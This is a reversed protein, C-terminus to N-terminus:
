IASIMFDNGDYLWTCEVEDVIKGHTINVLQLPRSKTVHKYHSM